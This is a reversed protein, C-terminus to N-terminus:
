YPGSVTDQCARTFLCASLRHHAARLDAVLRALLAFPLDVGGHVSPPMRRSMLGRDAETKQRPVQYAASGDARVDVDALTLRTIDGARRMWWFQLVVTTM